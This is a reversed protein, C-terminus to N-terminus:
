RAIRFRILAVLARLGDAVSMKKGQARTRAKFDVPVELIFRQQRSLKAVIEMELDVGASTLQLSRLVGADFAKLSTLTDTV